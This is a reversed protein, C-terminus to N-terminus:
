VCEVTPGAVMAGTYLAQGRPMWYGLKSVVTSCAERLAIRVEVTAPRGPQLDTLACDLAFLHRETSPHRGVLPNVCRADDTTLEVGSAEEGILGFRASGDGRDSDRYVTYTLTTAGGRRLPGGAVEVRHTPPAKPATLTLTARVTGRLDVGAPDSRVRVDAEIDYTGPGPYERSGPLTGTAAVQGDRRATWTGSTLCAPRAPSADRHCVAPASVATMPTGSGLCLSVSARQGDPGRLIGAPACVTMPEAAVPAPASPPDPLAWAPAVLVLPLAAAGLLTRPGTRRTRM